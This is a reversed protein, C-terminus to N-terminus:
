KTDIKNMARDQQKPRIVQHHEYGKRVGMVLYDFRGSKGNAERVVIRKASKEIVYLQLWEGLPTLQVTLGEDNTVLGFHEPLEIVAEGNQLQATGRIYTGAEPGELSVYVIEKTPDGPYDQVFRKQGRVEMDGNSFLRMVLNITVSDEDLDTVPGIVFRDASVGPIFMAWRPLEGYFHYFVAVNEFMLLTDQINKRSMNLHGTM